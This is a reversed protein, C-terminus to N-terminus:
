NPSTDITITASGWAASNTPEQDPRLGTLGRATILTNSISVGHRGDVIHGIDTRLSEALQLDATCFARVTDTGAPPAYDLHFGARNDDSMSDPILYERYAQLYGDPIFGQQIQIPNPLLQTVTGGSDISVLTLYCPEDTLVSLQLSNLDTRPEPAEYFRIKHNAVSATLKIGRTGQPATGMGARGTANLRLNVTGGAVDISLLEAVADANVAVEALRAVIGDTDELMAVRVIGNPGYVECNSDNTCDIVADAEGINEVWEIDQDMASPLSRELLLRDNGKVFFRRKDTKPRLPASTIVQPAAPGSNVPSFLPAEILERQGELQAEPLPHGAFIPKLKEVNQELAELLQKPSFEGQRSELARSIAATLLGLPKGNPGFPGDLEQQNAAAASFLVYPETGPAPVVGRTTLHDRQYLELRTDPPVSRSRIDSPSSRLATGSHCSDLVVVSSAVSLRGLLQGLEDDTIDAVGATRADYPCITEDLGDPEDGNLDDVQSGHGSYHVFVIDQPGAIAVLNEIAAVIGSRTAQEDLLTQINSESFGYRRILIERMVSVDNRSGSLWPLEKYKNVGILLARKTSEEAYATVAACIFVSLFFARFLFSSVSHAFNVTMAFIRREKASRM